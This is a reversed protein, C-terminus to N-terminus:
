FLEFADLHLSQSAPFLIRLCVFSFPSSLVVPAGVSQGAVIPRLLWHYSSKATLGLFVVPVQPPLHQHPGWLLRHVIVPAPKPLLLLRHHCLLQLDARSYHCVIATTLWSRAGRYDTTLWLQGHKASSNICPLDYFVIYPLFWKQGTTRLSCLAM